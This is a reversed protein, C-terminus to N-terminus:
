LYGLDKLTEVTGTRPTVRTAPTNDLQGRRWVFLGGQRAKGYDPVCGPGIDVACRARPVEVPLTAPRRGNLGLLVADPPAPKGDLDVTITLPAGHPETRFHVVDVDDVVRFTFRLINSEPDLEFRDDDEAQLGEVTAIAGESVVEGSLTHVKGDYSAAAIAYGPAYRERIMEAYMKREGPRSSALNTQAAPDAQLDFLFEAPAMGASAYERLIYEFRADIVAYEAYAMECRPQPDPFFRTEWFEAFHRKRATRGGTDIGALLDIGRLGPPAPIYLAKLITPMIDIGSALGGVRTGGHRGGPLKVVLPVRLKEPMLDNGHGWYGHEAFEEGHDSTIVVLTSDWLGREKLGSVLRELVADTYRIEGDYRARVYDIDRPSVSGLKDITTPKLSPLDKMAGCYDSDFMEGFSGPAEYPGHPDFVHVFAFFPEHLDADLWAFLDQKLQEFLGTGENVFVDFGQLHNFVPRSIIRGTCFGATDYGYERLVESLLTRSGDLKDLATVAGHQAPTLGTLISAVSPRTWSSQSHAGEFVVAGSALSDLFPSTERTYGYLGLHDRRLTEITCLLVNPRTPGTDSGVLRPDAVLCLGPPGANSGDKRMTVEFRVVVSQGAWASLDIAVDSWTRLRPYDREWECGYLCVDRKGDVSGAYVALQVSDFAGCEDAFDAAAGFALKQGHAIALTKGITATKDFVFCNRSEHNLEYKGRWIAPCEDEGFLRFPDAPGSVRDDQALLAKLAQHLSLQLKEGTPEVVAPRQKGPSVSVSIRPPAQGSPTVDHMVLVVLGVALLVFVPLTWRRQRWIFAAAVRAFAWSYRMTALFIIGILGLIPALWSFIAGGTGPDIYAHGTACFGLFLAVGPLVSPLTGGSLWKAVQKVFHKL